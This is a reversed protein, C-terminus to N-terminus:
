LISAVSSDKGHIVEWDLQFDDVAKQISPLNLATEIIDVGMTAAQAGSEFADTVQSVNKFSAALIKSNSSSLNILNAIKSIVENPDINNNQMRNYYPALYDAGVNMALYAQMKSYIATATVNVGQRKLEKMVKLGTETTPVKIYVQNDVKRLITMADKLMGDYNQSVVQIHLSKDLGIINRISNMHNFFEVNVEKKCISPNTTVGSLNLVENYHKIEALNATDIIFEM